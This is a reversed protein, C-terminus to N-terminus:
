VDALWAETENADTENESTMEEAEDQSWKTAATRAYEALLAGVEALIPPEERPTEGVLSAALARCVRLKWSAESITQEVVAGIGSHSHAAAIVAKGNFNLGGLASDFRKLAQRHEGVTRGFALRPDVATLDRLSDLVARLQETGYEPLLARELEETTESVRKLAAGM